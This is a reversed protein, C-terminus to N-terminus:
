IHSATEFIGRIIEEIPPEEITLDAVRFKQLIESAALASAGRPVRIEARPFDYSMIQGVKGLEEINPFEEFVVEIVKERGFKEVIKSLNGDFIIKGENIVIIRTALREIDGMYHSTLLITAEHKKNYVAIFERIKEQAVLDLGITPEDLFLVKPTHLLAAILEMRMRQGLSLKRVPTQLLDEVELISVLETLTQDFEKKPIGYIARNLVFSDVPPLDWWLQNKQGMVLTINKLFEEERKWPVRDVVKVFGGTPYLIGSLMKLTTTKGAGNPGIFGILEGEEIKFSIDNVARVINTKPNFISNVTGIIGPQKQPVVFYKKLRQVSIAVM